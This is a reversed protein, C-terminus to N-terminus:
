SDEIELAVLELERGAADEIALRSGAVGSNESAVQWAFLLADKVVGSLTGVKLHVAEVRKARLREAEESAVEVISVAISLEHM